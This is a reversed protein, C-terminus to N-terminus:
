LKKCGSFTDWDIVTVSPDVRVHLVDDPIEERTQGTYLFLHKPNTFQAMAKQHFFFQQQRRFSIERLPSLLSSSTTTTTPKESTEQM